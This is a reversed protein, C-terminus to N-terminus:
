HEETVSIEMGSPTVVIPLYAKVTESTDNDRFKTLMVDGQWLEFPDSAVLGMYFTMKDNVMDFGLESIHINRGKAKDFLFFNPKQNKELSLLFYCVCMLALLCLIVGAVYTLVVTFEASCKQAFLVFCLAAMTASILALVLSLYRSASENNNKNNGM